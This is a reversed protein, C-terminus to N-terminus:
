DANSLIDNSNNFKKILFLFIFVLISTKVLHNLVTLLESEAKIVQLFILPLFFLIVLNQKIKKNLFGWIKIIFFGYIGMFIIGWIRGFNAYSEGVISIGMSTTSDLSIGTFKEFNDRGSAVKKNPNLFRPLASAFIAEKITVGKGYPEVNPTHDMIASIIWGQNLRVNLESQAETDEALGGALRKNLIDMFLSSYSGEFGSQLFVRYDMKVAQIITSLFFGSIIVILSFKISPKKKCCWFMYFFTCWIIFEHFFGSALSVVALYIAALYLLIQHWKQKSFFLIIAGVYKFNALLFLIFKLSDPVSPRLLDALLGLVILVIGLKSYGSFRDVDIIIKVKRLGYLVLVVFAIYAPVVYRMYELEDVYMYYKFHSFATQYEIAAGLIWQMGAILLMLELIPLHKGLATIFKYFVFIVAIIGIITWSIM